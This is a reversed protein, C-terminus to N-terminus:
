QKRGLILYAVAMLGTIAFIGDFGPTKGAPAAAAAAMAPATVNASPAAAVAPATENASPTTSSPNYGPPNDM